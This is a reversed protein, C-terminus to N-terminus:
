RTQEAAQEELIQFRGERVQPSVGRIHFQHHERLGVGLMAPVLDEVRRPDDVALL